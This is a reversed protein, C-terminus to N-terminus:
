WLNDTRANVKLAIPVLGLNKIRHRHRHIDRKVICQDVEVLLESTVIYFDDDCSSVGLNRRSVHLQHKFAKLSVQQSAHRPLSWYAKGGM